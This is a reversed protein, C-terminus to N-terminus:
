SPLGHSCVHGGALFRNAECWSGLQAEQIRVDESGVASALRTCKCLTERERGRPVEIFRPSELLVSCRRRNWNILVAFSVRVKRRAHRFRNVKFTSPQLKFIVPLGGSIGVSSHVMLIKRTMTASVFENPFVQCTSM